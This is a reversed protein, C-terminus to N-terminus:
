TASSASTSPNQAAAPLSRPHGRGRRLVLGSAGHLGVPRAGAKLLAACLDVNVEGAIAMKLAYLAAQDTVRRGGRHQPRDSSPRCSPSRRGAATCSPSTIDPLKSRPWTPPSTEIERSRVVEGGVKVVLRLAMTRRGRALRTRRPRAHPEDIAGSARRRGQHPQRAGLVRHRPAQRGGGARAVGGSGRLEIGRGRRGRAVAQGARARVARGRVGRPLPREAANTSRTPSTCSRLRSSAARLRRPFRSSASILREAGAKVLLEAIEPVHQHELPKYTRLNNARVPHHTGASPIAGSGSSGTIGVTEVEGALLGARALPLLGLEITTAFCGPSAVYKAKRIADRNQEPLGYVFHVLLEPSPHPAGYYREYSARDKLRFDGSMDVIRVGTAVLEPVVKASVRHPLGLLVVDVDRAVEKPALNEFMLATQGELSPHAAGIPEGVYDASAVRVLEVNPHRFLRRIIEAGGYGSGGMVAARYTKTGM